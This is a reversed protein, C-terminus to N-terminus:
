GLNTTLNSIDGMNAEEPRAKMDLQIFNLPYIQMKM